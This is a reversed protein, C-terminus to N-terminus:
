VMMFGLTIVLVGIASSTASSTGLICKTDQSTTAKETDKTSAVKGAKCTTHATCTESNDNKDNFKGAACDACSAVAGNAAKVFKKGKDCKTVKDKCVTKATKGGPIKDKTAADCTPNAQDKCATNDDVDSYKDTGCFTCAASAFGEGKPCKTVTVTADAVCEEQTSTTKTGAKTKKGFPCGPQDLCKASTDDALTNALLAIIVNAM